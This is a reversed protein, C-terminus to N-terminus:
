TKFVCEGCNFHRYECSECNINRAKLVSERFMLDYEYVKNFLPRDWIEWFDHKLLSYEEFNVDRVSESYIAKECPLLFGSGYVVGLTKGANCRYNLNFKEDILNPSMDNYVKNCGISLQVNPYYHENTINNAMYKKIDILTGLIESKDCSKQRTYENIISLQTVNVKDVKYKNFLLDLIILIDQYNDKNLVLNIAIKTKPHYRKINEINHFVKNAQSKKRFTDFHKQTVGDVSFTVFECNYKSFIEEYDYYNFLGNSSIGYSIGKELLNNCIFSLLESEFPEGGSLKIMRISKEPLSNIIDMIDAESLHWEEKNRFDKNYCHSCGLSCKETINWRLIINKIIFM